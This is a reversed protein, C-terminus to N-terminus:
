SGNIDHVESRQRAGDQISLVTDFPLKTFTSHAGYELRGVEARRSGDRHLYDDGLEGCLILKEESKLALGFRRTTQTVGVHDVDSVKSGGDGAGPLKSIQYHLEQIALVEGIEQSFIRTGGLILDEVDGILDRESQIGGMGAADNM